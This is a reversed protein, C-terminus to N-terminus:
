RGHTQTAATNGREVRYPVQLIATNGDDTDGAFYILRRERDVGVLHAWGNIVAQTSVLAGRYFLSWTGERHDSATVVGGLFWGDGLDEAPMPRPVFGPAQSVVARGDVVTEVVSNDPTTDFDYPAEIRQIVEGDVSYEYIEHPLRRTYLLHGAATVNIAGAGWSFLTRDYEVEPLPAFARVPELEADFVRIAFRGITAPVGSIAIFGGPLAVLDDLPRMRTPLYGSHLFEGAPTFWSVRQRGADFAVIQGAPSVAVRTLVQFEGPGDGKKGARWLVEGAASIKILESAGWDAIVVGGDPGIALDAPQYVAAEATIERADGLILRASDQHPEVAEVGGVWLPPLAVLSALVNVALRAGM